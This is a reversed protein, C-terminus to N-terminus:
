LASPEPLMEALRAEAGGALQSALKARRARLAHWARPLDLVLLIRRSSCALEGRRHTGIRQFGLVRTHFRYPSHPDDEFVATVLHSYGRAVVEEIAARMLDLVLAPRSRWEPRIMLRGIEVFRGSAALRDLDVGPELEVGLEAPLRLSPDFEIRVAGVPVAGELAVFWTQRGDLDAGEPIERDVTAGIWGKEERYVEDVVVLAARRIEPSDVRLVRVAQSRPAEAAEEAVAAASSERSRTVFRSDKRLQFGQDKRESDEEPNIDLPDAIVPTEENRPLHVKRSLRALDTFVRDLIPAVLERELARRAHPAADLWADREAGFHLPEGARLVFRGARPTRLLRDRAPFDVGVPLIPVGSRLALLALGRRADALRWPDPNRRGEPYVGVDAGADLAALARELASERSRVRRHAERLGLLAPKAYVPIPDIQRVLWGTWPLDVFMWDVLFRVPRGRRVAVLAAPALVAEWANHHTLAFIVPEPAAAIREAGEVRIAGGSLALLTRLTARRAGNLMRPLELTLARRPDLELIAPEAM